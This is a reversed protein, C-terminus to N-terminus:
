EGRGAADIQRLAEYLVIGAATSLNLSRVREPRLPIALVNQPHAALIEEALGKSESGFVLVDGPRYAVQTYSRAGGTSFFFLRAGAVSKEFAAYCPHRVIEAAEWYDLAARRLTPDNLHFGLPSVLHLRTGTAACLRVINGTNPPIEPEVLAIQLPPDPWAFSVECRRMHPKKM